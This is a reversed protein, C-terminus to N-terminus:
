QSLIPVGDSVWRHHQEIIFVAGSYRISLTSPVFLCARMRVNSPTRASSLVRLDPYLLSPFLTFCKVTNFTLGIRYQFVVSINRYKNLFLKGIFGAYRYPIVRTPQKIQGNEDSHFSQMERLHKELLRLGNKDLISAITFLLLM